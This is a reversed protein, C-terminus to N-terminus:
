ASARRAWRAHVRATPRPNAPQRDCACPTPKSGNLDMASRSGAGVPRPSSGAGLGAVAGRAGPKPGECYCRLLPNRHGLLAAILWHGRAVQLKLGDTNGRRWCPCELWLRRRRRLSSASWGTKRQWTRSASPGLRDYASRGGGMPRGCGTSGSRLPWPAEVLPAGGLAPGGCPMAGEPCPAGV